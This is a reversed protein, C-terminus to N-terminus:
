HTMGLFRYQLKSLVNKHLPFFSDVIRILSVWLNCINKPVVLLILWLIIFPIFLTIKKNKHIIALKNPHKEANEFLIEVINNIM